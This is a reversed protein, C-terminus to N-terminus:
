HHYSVATLALQKDATVVWSDGQAATPVHSSFSPINLMTNLTSVERSSRSETEEVADDFIDEDEETGNEFIDKDTECTRAQRLRSLKCTLNKQELEVKIITQMINAINEMEFHSIAFVLVQSCM